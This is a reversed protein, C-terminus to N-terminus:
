KDEVEIADRKHKDEDEKMRAALELLRNGGIREKERASRATVQRGTRTETLLKHWHMELLGPSHQARVYMADSHRVYRRAVESAEEIAQDESMDPPRGEIAMVAIRAFHTNTRSDRTVAVPEGSANRYVSGFAELYAQFIRAGNTVQRAQKAARSRAPKTEPSNALQLAFGQQPDAGPLDSRPATQVQGTFEEKKKRTPNPQTPNPHAFVTRVEPTVVPSTVANTVGDTVTDTVGYRPGEAEKSLRSIKNERHKQMRKAAAKNLRKRQDSSIQYELYDHIQIHSGLDYWLGVKVLALTCALGTKPRELHGYLVRLTAKPFIGDNAQKNCEALAAHWLRFEGDRLQLIKEHSMYGDDLRLWSM